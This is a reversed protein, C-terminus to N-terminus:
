AAELDDEYHQGYQKRFDQEAVRLRKLVNVHSCKMEEAMGELTMEQFHRMLLLDVHMPLLFTLVHEIRKRRDLEVPSLNQRRGVLPTYAQQGHIKSQEWEDVTDNASLSSVPRSSGRSRGEAENKGTTAKDPGSFM